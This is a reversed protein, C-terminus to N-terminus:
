QQNRNLHEQKWMLLVGALLLLLTGVHILGKFSIGPIKDHAMALLLAGFALCALCIQVAHETVFQPTAYDRLAM